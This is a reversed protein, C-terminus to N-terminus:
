VNVSCSAFNESPLSTVASSMAKVIFPISALAVALGLAVRIAEIWPAFSYMSPVACSTGPMLTTSGFVSATVSAAGSAENMRLM